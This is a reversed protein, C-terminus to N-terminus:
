AEGLFPPSRFSVFHPLVLHLPSNGAAPTGSECRPRLSPIPLDHKPSRPSLLLIALASTVRDLTHPAPTLHPRTPGPPLPSSKKQGKEKWAEISPYPFPRILANARSPLATPFFFCPEDGFQSACFPRRGYQSDQNMVMQFVRPLFVCPCM